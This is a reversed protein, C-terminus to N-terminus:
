QTQVQNATYYYIVMITFLISPINNTKIMNM